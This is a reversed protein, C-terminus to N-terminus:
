GSPRQRLSHWAGAALFLFAAAVGLFGWALMTDPFSWRALALSREVMAGPTPGLAALALLAAGGVALVARRRWALAVFLGAAGALLTLRLSSAAPATSPSFRGRWPAGRM